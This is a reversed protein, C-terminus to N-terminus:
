LQRVRLTKTCMYEDEDQIVTIVTRRNTLTKNRLHLLGNSNDWYQDCAHACVHVCVCVCESVSYVVCM